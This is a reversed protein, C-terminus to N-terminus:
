NKSRKKPLQFRMRVKITSKEAVEDRKTATWKPGTKILRIVEEDCGSGIGKVVRFDSLMGTTEVSFTVTVRGEVNNLLAEQPYQLNKELYQRFARRGGAPYAFDYTAALPDTERVTGYGAVVVESLQTLDESLTITSPKSEEATEEVNSYGIFTYVLTPKKEDGALQYNGNIDTVTGTNTGKFVVNVGPIPSGDTDVVKGTFVNTVATAGSSEKRESPAPTVDSKKFAANGKQTSAVNKHDIFGDAPSVAKSKEDEFVVEEAARQEARQAPPGEADSAIGAADDSADASEAATEPKAPVVAVGSARGSLVEAQDDKVDSAPADERKRASRSENGPVKENNALPEQVPQQTDDPSKFADAEKSNQVSDSTISNVDGSAPTMEKNLAIQDTQNDSIFFIVVGASAILLLGAAIRTPWSWLSTQKGAPTHVGELIGGTSDRDIRRNLMDHINNVDASFEESTISEGGSIADALFPDDLAKKELAHMEAPTMRGSLYRTIDDSLDAM